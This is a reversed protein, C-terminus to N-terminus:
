RGRYTIDPNTAEMQRHMIQQQWYLQEPTTAPGRSRAIRRAEDQTQRSMRNLEEQTIPKVAEAQFPQIGQAGYSQVGQAQFSQIDQGYVFSPVFMLLVILKKM